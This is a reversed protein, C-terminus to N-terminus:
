AVLEAFDDHGLLWRRLAPDRVIGKQMAVTLARPNEPIPVASYELLDWEEVRLGRRGSGDDPLRVARLPVFGISWARLIGQEYLRFVDEAFAVGRAFQTEAVMGEDRGEWGRGVGVAAGGGGGE